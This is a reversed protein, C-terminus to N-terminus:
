KNLAPLIIEFITNKRAKQLRIVGNLKEVAIKATYIELGTGGPKPSGKFFINFVKAEDRPEIGFGNDEIVIRLNNDQYETKIKITPDKKDKYCIANRIMNEIIVNFLVRDSNWQGLANLETEFTLSTDISFKSLRDATEAIESRPDLYDLVPKIQYTEHVEILRSLVNNFNHSVNQLTDFYKISKEDKAEMIGLNIIGRMTAIPGRLDHSTKYIFQDLDKVAKELERNSKDLEINTQNLEVTREKVKHDLGTNINKLVENQSQITIQAEALQNNKKVLNIKQEEIESNSANLQRNIASTHRYNRFIVVILTISLSLISLLFLNFFERNNITEDRDAIKKKSSEEIQAIQVNALNYALEENFISDKMLSFNKQYHFASDLRNEAEFIDAYLRYNNKMRIKDNMSTVLKQSRRLHNLAEDYEGEQFAIKALLYYNLSELKKSKSKISEDISLNLYHRSSDYQLNKAYVNAIGNYASGIRKTQDNKIALEIAQRFNNIANEESKEESLEYYALGINIYNLICNSTDGLELKIDLSKTYYELAKEPDNIKYFILGIDSFSKGISSKTGIEEKISLSKSHYELATDYLSLKYYVSGLGTYAFMLITKDGTKNAILASKNFNILSNKYDGKGKYYYGLENHFKSIFTSDQEALAYDLGERTYKLYDDSDGRSYNYSLLELAKLKESGSLSLIVHKLSDINVQSIAQISIFSFFLLIILYKFLVIITSKGVIFGM